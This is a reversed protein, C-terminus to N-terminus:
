RISSQSSDNLLNEQNTMPLPTITPDNTGKRIAIGLTVAVIQMFFIHFIAGHLVWIGYMFLVGAGLAAIQKGSSDLPLNCARRLSIAISIWMGIYFVLGSIGSMFLIQLVDNHTGHTNTQVGYKRPGYNPTLNFGFLQTIPNRSKYEDLYRNILAIRGSGLATHDGGSQYKQVDKFRADIHQPYFVLIATVATSFLLTIGILTGFNKLFGSKKHAFGYILFLVFVSLVASRVMVATILLLLTAVISWNVVSFLRNPKSSPRPYLFFILSGILSAVVGSESTFPWIYIFGLDYATAGTQQINGVTFGAIIILAAALGFKRLRQIEKPDSFLIYGVPLYILWSTIKAAEKINEIGNIVAALWSIFLFAIMFLIVTRILRSKMLDPIVRAFYGLGCLLTLFSLSDAFTFSSEGFSFLPVHIVLNAFARAVLSLGFFIPPSLVFTLALVLLFISSAGLTVIEM